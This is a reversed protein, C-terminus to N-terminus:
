DEPHSDNGINRTYNFTNDHNFKMEHQSSKNFSLDDFVRPSRQNMGMNNEVRRLYTNLKKLKEGVKGWERNEIDIEIDIQMETILKREEPPLHEIAKKIRNILEEQKKLTKLEKGFAWNKIKSILNPIGRIAVDKIGGLGLSNGISAITAAMIAGIILWSMVRARPKVSEPDEVTRRLFDAVMGPVEGDIGMGMGFGHGMFEKLSAIGSETLNKPRKRRAIGGLPTPLQAVDGSVSATAPAAAPAGDENISEEENIGYKEKILKVLQHWNKYPTGYNELGVNKTYGLIPYFVDIGKQSLHKILIPSDEIAITPKIDNVIIREKNISTEALIIDQYKFGSLNKKRDEQFRSPVATVIIIDFYKSLENFGDKANKIIKFKQFIDPIAWYEACYQIAKEHGLGFDYIKPDVKVEPHEIKMWDCFDKAYEVLVGDVDCSITANSKEVLFQQFNKIM